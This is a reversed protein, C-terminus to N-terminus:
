YQGICCHAPDLRFEDPRSDADSAPLATAAIMQSAPVAAMASPVIASTATGGGAAYMDSITAAFVLVLSLVFALALGLASANVLSRAIRSNALIKMPKEEVRHHEVDSYIRRTEVLHGFHFM